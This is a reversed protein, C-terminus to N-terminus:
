LSFLFFTSSDAKSVFEEVRLIGYRKQLILQMRTVDIRESSSSSSSSNSSSSSSSSSCSSSSCCFVFSFQICFFPFFFFDSAVIVALTRSYFLLCTCVNGFM